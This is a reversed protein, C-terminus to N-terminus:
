KVVDEEAEVGIDFGNVEKWTKLLVLGIEEIAEETFSCWCVVNGLMCDSGCDVNLLSAAWDCCWFRCYLDDYPSSTLISLSLNVYKRSAAVYIIFINLTLIFQIVLM